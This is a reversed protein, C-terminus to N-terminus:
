TLLNPRKSRIMGLFMIQFFLVFAYLGWFAFKTASEPLSIFSFIIIMFTIGLSPVIVVILMYFMALPNLQSGYKQIQLVQQESLSSIIETLVSSMESGAKLGNVLQWIARRFFLSPNIAAIEELVEIQPKGTNIEKVARTFESSIEGYNEKSINVLIDFFAVGSNFQILINQLAPLLNREVSKVRERAILKPYIIQQLFVFFSFILSVTLSFAIFKDIKLLFLFMSSLFLIFFFSSISSLFCISVYERSRLEIRAQKLDVTLFPFLITFYDGIWYFLHALQRLVKLPLISYPLKLM